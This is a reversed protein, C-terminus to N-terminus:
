FKYSLGLSFSRGPTLSSYLEPQARFSKFVSEAKQNLLNSVKFDITTNKDKGIKKNLSFNLSHFPKVYMDPFVGAGVILLTEGKMNYFLGASLGTELNNYSLGGNIVFPSQGAMDRTREVTQGDKEFEKRSNFESETMEIESKTLTINGNINFYKLTSSLMDLSKNFEFEVGYLSGDGVNRAQYETSTVGSTLRVLEIPADFDKYFISASVNQGRDWFIEWRLDVNNIYTERLNGDWEDVAYLGGNFITNSLPDIIQAFSLEKFSPRAVTRSYSARLNQKESTEFIFNISPFFDTSELVKENDLKRSGNQDQGTHRMVYNEVRLGVITKLKSFPYFENSVYAATNHVNSKYANSPSSEPMMYIYGSTGDYINKPKLLQSADAEPYIISMQTFQYGMKIIEYDRNKYNHTVGFKLVANKSRIKYSKTLDIKSSSNIENLKRWIRSPLGAAGANFVIDGDSEHTFATKRIDPDDSTSFTPSIRWDIEWGKEDFVHTGQLLLNTLSRQNYQLQDSTAIYGSQGAALGNNDISFQGASSSGSQLHMATLRIKNYNNKYGLGGLTGVLINRQGVAGEQITSYIMDYNSSSSNMKYDGYLVNGDFDSSSKYSFSFIYGLKSNKEKDSGINFQNGLSIGMSYDAFMSKTKAGLVPSFQNVFDNIASGNSPTPLLQNERPIFDPLARTGDDFGLFDTNGGDYTLFDPNFHMNPNYEMGVSVSFIKQDPFDKTTINMLGGTFDAPLDAIFNKSVMMNDIINTPFIDMQLSNRDPDLGPIDMGNLTTKSYRDGLGRVYVYKGDEVTVGTVRKAAEAANGDGILEIKASSIGDLMVASKRKITQISAETNRIASATVVVDELEVSSERLQLDNLVTVSGPKIVINEIVLPQYSIFSLQLSYTGSELDLSFKGDLDTATGIYTNQIVVTVGVLTEGTNGDYVTGRITGKEQAYAFTTLILTAWTFLIRKMM